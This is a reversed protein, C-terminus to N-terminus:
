DKPKAPLTIPKWHTPTSKHEWGEAHGMYSIIQVRGSSVVSYKGRVEPKEKEADRWPNIMEDIASHLATAQSSSASIVDNQQYVNIEGDKFLEIEIARLHGDQPITIKREM